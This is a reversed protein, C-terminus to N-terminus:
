GVDRLQDPGTYGSAVLLRKRGPGGAAAGTSLLLGAVKQPSPTEVTIWKEVCVSTWLQAGTSRTNVCIMWPDTWLANGQCVGPSAHYSCARMSARTEKRAHPAIMARAKISVKIMGLRSRRFDVVGALNPCLTRHTFGTRLGYAGPAPLAWGFETATIRSPSFSIGTSSRGTGNRASLWCAGPPQGSGFRQTPWGSRCL